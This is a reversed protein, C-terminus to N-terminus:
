WEAVITVLLLAFEELDPPRQRLTEAELTSIREKEAVCSQALGRLSSGEPLSEESPQLAFFAVIAVVIAVATGASLFRARATTGFVRGFREGFSVPAKPTASSRKSLDSGCAVCFRNADDNEAGCHPCYM